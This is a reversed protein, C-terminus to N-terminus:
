IQSNRLATTNFLGHFIFMCFFLVQLFVHFYVGTNYLYVFNIVCFDDRYISYVICYAYGYVCLM